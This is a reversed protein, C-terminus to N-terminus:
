GAQGGIKPKLQLDGNPRSMCYDGAAATDYEPPSSLERAIDSKRIDYGALRIGVLKPDALM